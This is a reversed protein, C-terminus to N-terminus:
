LYAREKVIVLITIMRAYDQMPTVQSGASNDCKFVEPPGPYSVESDIFNALIICFILSFMHRHPFGFSVISGLGSGGDAPDRFVLPFDLVVM